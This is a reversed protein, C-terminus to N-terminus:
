TPWPGGISHSSPMDRRALSPHIARALARAGKVLNPGPSNVWIEPITEVRRARIAPLEQWASRRYVREIPPDDVGPWTLVIVHPAAAIIEEEPISKRDAPHPVFDANLYQEVLEAVWLPGNMYPRPWVEIYVKRRPEGSLKQRLQRFENQMSGVVQEAQEAAGVLSGVIRINRYISDLDTPMLMLLDRYSQLLTALSKERVPISGLVLDAEVRELDAPTIAWTCPLQPLERVREWDDRDLLRRDHRGIAVLRDLRGLAAVTATISGELSALRLM